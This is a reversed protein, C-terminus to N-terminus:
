VAEGRLLRAGAIRVLLGVDVLAPLPDDRAYVAGQVPGHLSRVWDRVSLTGRRWEQGAAPVDMLLRVWRVGPVARLAPVPEGSVMRWLLLPFDV